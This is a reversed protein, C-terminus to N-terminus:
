SKVPVADTPHFVRNVGSLDQGRVLLCPPRETAWRVPPDFNLPVQVMQAPTCYQLILAMRRSESTNRSAHWLPGAFLLAEGDSVPPTVVTAEPDFARAHNLVAQDTISSGDFARPHEQPCTPYLHSGPILRLSSAPTCNRLGVWVTVGPWELHEVDAHWRL